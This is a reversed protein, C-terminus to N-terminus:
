INKVGEPLMAMSSEGVFRNLAAFVKVGIFFHRIREAM